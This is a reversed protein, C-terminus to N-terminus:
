RAKRNQEKSFLKRFVHQTKVIDYGNHRYFTHAEKRVINSRLYVFPCNRRQAWAHAKEMLARGVGLRRFGDDIILAGIEAKGQNLVSVPLFIELWGVVYGQLEAAFLKQNIRHAASGIRRSMEDRTVPYGLQSSLEAMRIADSVRVSRVKVRNHARHDKSGSPLRLREAKKSPSM